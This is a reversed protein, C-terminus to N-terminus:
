VPLRVKDVKMISSLSLCALPGTGVNLGNFRDMVYLANM